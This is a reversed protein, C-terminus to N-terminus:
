WTMFIRSLKKAFMNHKHVGGPQKHSVWRKKKHFRAAFAYIDLDYIEVHSTVLDLKEGLQSFWEKKAQVGSLVPIGESKLSNM